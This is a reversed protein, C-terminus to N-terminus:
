QTQDLAAQILQRFKDYSLPNNIKQGNLYFTPTGEVFAQNGSIKDDQVAAQIDKNKLDATFREVDLSLQEAYGIFIDRANSQGAWEGQNDFLLNHMEWFRDQQGAAEAAYAALTAQPHLSDLPYNRYIIQIQDGFEESLMKVNRYYVACAPCQFDSYEILTVAADSGGKSWEQDKITTSGEPNPKAAQVIIWTLVILALIAILWFWIRNKSQM